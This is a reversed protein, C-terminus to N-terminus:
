MPFYAALTLVEEAAILFSPDAPDKFAPCVVVVVFVM